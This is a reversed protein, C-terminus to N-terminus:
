QRRHDARLGLISLLLSTFCVQAGLIVLTAAVVALRQESLAGLDRSVWKALVVGGLALGSVGLVAGLLLGHELRFRSQMRQLWPDRDGIVYVGFARACIGLGIAQVGLILLMSGVILTHIFFGHGFLKVEGLVICTLLTGALVMLVGPVVFVYDPSYVLLLRLHRWGDRFPSLKSEGTRPHLKIPFERVDLDHKSARIVMESAFEMGTTRLDLRPLVDRRVARMGCHVDGIKTRFFLNYLGSLLPNGIYRNLVPM